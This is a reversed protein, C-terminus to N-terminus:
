EYLQPSEFGLLGVTAPMRECDDERAEEEGKIEMVRLLAGELITAVEQWAEDRLSLTTVSLHSDEHVDFTKAELADSARRYLAKLIPVTLGARDGPPLTAFCLDDFMLNTRNRYTTKISGRVQQQQVAEICELEVLTRFHYAVNSVPTGIAASVEAPAVPRENTLELIKVRVPHAMAKALRLEVDQRGSFGTERSSSRPQGAGRGAM